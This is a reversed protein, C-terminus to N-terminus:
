HHDILGPISHLPMARTTTNEIYFDGFLQNSVRNSVAIVRDVTDKDERLWEDSLVPRQAYDDGLHWMDLSTAHSSRMEGTIRNPKYRYENWRPVYGFVQQDYPKGSGDVAKSGQAYIEQNLIAQEGLNAFVPLYYDTVKKRSWFREIGQQYSHEYRVVCVGIIFGHEVFSKVFDHHSDTTLSYAATNGQPTSGDTTASNQVVQSVNISVHSGGLYEPNQLRYDQADVHFQAKLVESYRSGSRALQEYYKQLQFAARLENITVATADNSVNAVLGSKSADKTVGITTNSSPASGSTFTSGAPKDSASTYFSAGHSSDVTMGFETLAGSASPAGIFGLTDGNGVVLYTGGTFLPLTVSPGKQPAPLAQSFYDNYRRAIWPKGGNAIDTVYNAGNSGTQVTENDPIVFPDQLAQNRFFYDMVKAYARFPLANVSIDSVGTPIGMYDAITGVNWGGAPPKIQPVEYTTQPIWASETNEGQFEKWHKWVLRNPVFFYYTDMWMPTVFPAIPTQLRVLKHTKVNFTDGPLVEDVYFPVVEGVNFSTTVSSNRKFTSRSISISVPNSAFDFTNRNM